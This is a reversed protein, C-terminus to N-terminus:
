VAHRRLKEYYPWHHDLYDTLHPTTAAAAYFRERQQDTEGPTLPQISTSAMVDRHWGSVQQWDEPSSNRWEFAHERHDLGVADWLKRVTATPQNRISEARIITPKRGSQVLACYHNWQAQLGIEELSVDPDLKHYSLISAFPNRILFCHTIQDCFLKDDLLRPVVYYSMDKLFVPGSRAHHLIMDRVDEYTTPHDPKSDFHPMRRVARNIYYDYMFPEHLCHLDGRERM